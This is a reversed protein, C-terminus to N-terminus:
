NYNGNLIELFAPNKSLFIFSPENNIRSFDDFGLKFALKLNKITNDINHKKAAILAGLYFAETNNPNVYKYIADFKEAFIIQNQKLAYNVQMYSFLGLFALIRKKSDSTLNNKLTDGSLEIIKNKWWSTDKSEFNQMLSQNVLQENLLINTLKNTQNIYSASKSIRSIEKKFYTVDTLGNLFEFIKLNINYADIQNNESLKKKLLKKNYNLFENILNEDYSRLSDKMENFITWYFADKFSISDPWQHKGDFIILSHRYEKPISKNLSLLENLNFDTKGAFSLIDIKHSFQQNQSFGVGCLVCGKFLDNNIALTSAVRAGGSFGISYIRNKDISFRKFVDDTFLKLINNIQQYNTGNKSDNSAVLIYDYKEAYSKYLNIPIDGSAHPDFIFFIPYTKTKIYNKPLYYTYALNSTNIYSVKGTIINETKVIKKPNINKKPNSNNNSCSLFVSFAVIFILLKTKM